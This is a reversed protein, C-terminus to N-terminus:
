ISLQSLKVVCINQKKEFIFLATNYRLVTPDYAKYSDPRCYVKLLVSWQENKSMIRESYAAHASYLISPSVFIAAAWNKIGLFDKGLQIHGSPPKVGNTGAPLLGHKMISELNKFETGHWVLDWNKVISPLLSRTWEDLLRKDRILEKAIVKDKFEIPRMRSVLNKRMFDTKLSFIVDTSANKILSKVSDLSSEVLATNGWRNKIDTRAGYELLLGVILSHGYYSAVHLSTSGDRQIKNIEAGENLLMKATDYFGSKCALYLLTRGHEDSTTKLKKNKKIMDQLKKTDGSAVVTFHDHITISYMNGNRRYRSETSTLIHNALSALTRNQRVPSNIKQRFANKIQDRSAKNSTLGLIFWPNLPFKVNVQGGGAAVYIISTM